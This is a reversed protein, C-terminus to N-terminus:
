RYGLARLQEHIEEEDEYETHTDDDMAPQRREYDEAAEEASDRLEEVRDRKKTALNQREEPDKRIDYLEEGEAHKVDCLRCDLDGDVSYILKEGSKTRIMRRRQAHSEEALVFDRELSEGREILEKLSAGDMEESPEDVDTYSLVTPAIDTIQVLDRVRNEAGEPPRVILPIRTTVDYLGHHDYYIGHETLSEGHDALVIVLTDQLANVDRLADLLSGIRDDTKSVTADYHANLIASSPVGGSYYYDDVIDDFDEESRFRRDNSRPLKSENDGIRRPTYEFDRLYRAVLSPDCEYPAHTDMLHVFAYFPSRSNSFERFQEVLPDTKNGQDSTTTRERLDKLRHYASMGANGLAPHVDSLLRWLSKSLREDDFAERDESVSPYIDFGKRHWRGLPRGFKATAYGAESLIEPLQQVLEVSRKETETVRFGHNVVGHSLPYRGTQLSTVASDTVNTTSYARTFVTAERALESIQPTLDREGLVGVRDARLADAVVVLVNPRM